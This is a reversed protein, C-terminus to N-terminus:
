DRKERQYGSVNGLLNSFGVAALTLGPTAAKRATPSQPCWLRLTKTFFYLYYFRGGLDTTILLCM